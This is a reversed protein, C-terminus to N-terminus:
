SPLTYTALTCFPGVLRCPLKRPPSLALVTLPAPTAPLLPPHLLCSSSLSCCLLSPHSTLQYLPSLPLSFPPYCSFFFISSPPALSNVTFIPLLFLSPSPLLLWRTLVSAPSSPSVGLFLSPSPPLPRTAPRITVCWVCWRAQWM